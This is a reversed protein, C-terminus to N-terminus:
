HLSGPQGRETESWLGLTWNLEEGSSCLLLHPDGGSKSEPCSLEGPCPIRRGEVPLSCPPAVTGAYSDKCSMFNTERHSFFLEIRHLGLFRGRM